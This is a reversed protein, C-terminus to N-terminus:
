RSSEAPEPPAADQPGTRGFLRDAVGGLAKLTVNVYLGVLFAVGTVVNGSAVYGLRSSLLFVGAALPLAAMARVGVRLVGATGREFKAVISTFAYAMAGLFAYVYIQGPVVGTEVPSPYAFGEVGVMWGTTLLVAGLTLLGYVTIVVLGHRTEYWPTTM